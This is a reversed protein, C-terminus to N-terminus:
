KTSLADMTELESKLQKAREDLNALAKGPSFDAVRLIPSAGIIAMASWGPTDARRWRHLEEQMQRMEAKVREIEAVLEANEAQTTELKRKLRRVKEMLLELVAQVKREYEIRRQAAQNSTFFYAIAAAIAAIIFGGIIFPVPM